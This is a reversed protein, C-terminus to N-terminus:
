EVGLKVINIRASPVDSWGATAIPTPRLGTDGNLDVGLIHYNLTVGPTPIETIYSVDIPAAFADQTNSMSIATTEGIQSGNSRASFAVESYGVSTSRGASGSISVHYVGAENFTITGDAAMSMSGNPSNFANGSFTIQLEEGNATVFQNVTSSDELEDQITLTGIEDTPLAQFTATGVGTATLVHGSTAAAAGKAEHLFEDTLSAHQIDAM